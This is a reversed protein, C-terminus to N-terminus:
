LGETFPGVLKFQFIITEGPYAPNLKDQGCAIATTATIVCAFKKTKKWSFTSGFHGNPKCLKIKNGCFCYNSGLQLLKNQIQYRM